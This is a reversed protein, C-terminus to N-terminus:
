RRQDADRRDGEPRHEHRARLDRADPGDPQRDDPPLRLQRPVPRRRLGVRPERGMRPSAAQGPRGAGHDGPWVWVFGYREICRIPASRRFVACASAPCPSPRATAAWRWDTIAASWIAGDVCRASRSRRAATRASTRSRRPPEARPAIVARHARRLDHPRAAQRRRDGRGHLRRVLRQSRVHPEEMPAAGPAARLM